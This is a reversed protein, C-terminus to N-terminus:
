FNETRKKLGSHKEKLEKLREYTKDKDIKGAKRNSDDQESISYDDKM